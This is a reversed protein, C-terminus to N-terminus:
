RCVEAGAGVHDGVAEDVRRARRRRVVVALENAVAVADVQAALRVRAAPREPQVVEVAVVVVLPDLSGEEEGALVPVPEM